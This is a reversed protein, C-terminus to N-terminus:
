RRPTVGFRKNTVLQSPTSFITGASRKVGAAKLIKEAFSACNHGRWGIGLRSYWYKKQNRQFELAADYAAQAQSDTRDWHSSRAPDCWRTAPQIWIEIGKGKRDDRGTARGSMKMGSEAASGLDAAPEAGPGGMNAAETYTLDIKFHEMRDAGARRALFISSHGGWKNQYGATAAIAPATPLATAAPVATTGSSDAGRQILRSPQARGTVGSAGQQVTHTLEHALLIKGAASGPDYQGSNFHINNGRTFAKSQIEQNLRASAAGTHIRVRDFSAGFKPELERRVSPDLPRGRGESRNLRSEFDAGTEFGAELSGGDPQRQVKGAQPLDVAAGEPQSVVQQAVRDAELEYSDQAPGVMLKAQVPLRTGGPAAATGDLQRNVARNGIARQL